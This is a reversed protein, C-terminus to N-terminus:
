PTRAYNRCRTDEQGSNNRNGPLNKEAAYQRLQLAISCTRCAAPPLELRWHLLMCSGQYNKEFGTESQSVTYLPFLWLDTGPSLIAGLAFGNWDDKLEFAGVPGLSGCHNVYLQQEPDGTISYHVLPNEEVPLAFNLEVGFWLQQARTASNELTYRVTLQQRADSVYFTKQLRLPLPVDDHMIHGHRHLVFRTATEPCDRQLSQLEYPTNIFDGLEPYRAHSFGELTTEPGFFHDIFCHREYWDYALVDECAESPPAGNTQRIQRHYGEMRRSLTNTLNLSRPKYDLEFLAGGAAPSVYANLSEGSVLLDRSFDRGFDIVQTDIWSGSGHSIGDIAQEANLLHTYVAHRLYSLYIGGFLGHWYAANCQGQYLERRARDIEPGSAGSGGEQLAALRQSVLLMKKHMRNGEPYKSLFNNWYGGSFFPAYKEYLDMAHLHEVMCDYRAVADAPLAWQMMEDYSLTPLYVLGQPRCRTRYESLTCLKIRHRNKELTQFFSELWGQGYVWDQTGPWLGFKEGDDGWTVASGDDSALYLLYEITKEPPKFPILYRLKKDIPFVAVAQGDRETVYYGRIQEPALGTHLFHTSDLLTASVGAACLLRPLVPDWVREAVWAGTPQVGFRAALTENMLQLQGIVDREPLVSFVPEYMGGGLLEVQGREILEHLLDCMDPERDAMWELLTGSFHLTASIAPHRSLLQLFPRYAQRFAKAVVQELNGVPQHNHICILFHIKKM